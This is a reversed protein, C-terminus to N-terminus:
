KAYFFPETRIRLNIELLIDSPSIKEGNISYGFGRKRPLMTDLIGNKKRSGGSYTTMGVRLDVLSSTKKQFEKGQHRAAQSCVIKQERIRDSPYM